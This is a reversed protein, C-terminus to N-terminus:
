RDRLLAVWFLLPSMDEKCFNREAVMTSEKALAHATGNAFRKVFVVSVFAFNLDKLITKCEQILSPFYSDLVLLLRVTIIRYNCVPQYYFSM